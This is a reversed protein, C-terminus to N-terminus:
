NLSIPQYFQLPSLLWPISEGTITEKEWPDITLTKFIKHDIFMNIRTKNGAPILLNIRQGPKMHTNYLDLFSGFMDSEIRVHSKLFRPPLIYTLLYFSGLQDPSITRNKVSSNVVLAVPTDTTAYEGAQPTQSLVYGQKKQPNVDSVVKAIKLDHLNAKQSASELSLGTLPPMVIGLPKPGRSVLLNCGTGKFASSFPKPYQEMIRKEMTTSSYTYSIHGPRFDNRELLILAQELPVHRLDPILSEKKGKSIFIIVDRGKKITAGPAPDQTIVSYRPLSEDYLTGHLKANLGMQTLTELVYIINKGKLEPIVVEEASKTFMRIGTYAILGAIVFAACFALGYKVLSKM